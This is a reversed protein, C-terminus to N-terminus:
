RNLKFEVVLEEGARPQGCRMTFEARTTRMSITQETDELLTALGADVWAASEFEPAVNQLFRKGAAAAHVRAIGDRLRLSLTMSAFSLDAPDIKMKMVGREGTALNFQSTWMVRGDTDNSRESASAGPFGALVDMIRLNKHAAAAEAPDTFHAVVKADDHHALWYWGIAGCLLLGGVLLLGRQKSTGFAIMRAM